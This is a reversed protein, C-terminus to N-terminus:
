IYIYIYINVNKQKEMWYMDSIETAQIGENIM